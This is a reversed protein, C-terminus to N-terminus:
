SQSCGTDMRAAIRISCNRPSGTYKCLRRRYLIAVGPIRTLEHNVTVTFTLLEPHYWCRNGCVHVNKWTGSATGTHMVGEADQQQWKFEFTGPAGNLPETYSVPDPATIKCTSYCPALRTLDPTFVFVEGNTFWTFTGPGNLKIGRCQFYGFPYEQQMSAADCLFSTTTMTYTTQANARAGVVLLAVVLWGSRQLKM